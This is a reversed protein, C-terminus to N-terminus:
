DDHDYKSARRFARMAKDCEAPDFRVSHGVKYYPLRGDEAMYAIMRISLQYRAAMQQITRWSEEPNAKV